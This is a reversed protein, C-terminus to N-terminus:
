APFGRSPVSEEFRGSLSEDRAPQPPKIRPAFAFAAFAIAAPFCELVYRPEPTEAFCAIFATRLVIFALLFAVMPRLPSIKWARWAGIAALALYAANVLVLAATVCFDERDEDWERSIPFLQGSYPLLEV